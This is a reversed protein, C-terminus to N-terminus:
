AFALLAIALSILLGVVIGLVFSVPDHFRGVHLIAEFSLGESEVLDMTPVGPQPPPPRWGRHQACVCGEVPGPFIAEPSDCDPHACQRQDHTCGLQECMTQEKAEEMRATEGEDELQPSVQVM